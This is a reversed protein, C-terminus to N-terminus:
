AFIKPLWRRLIMELPVLPQVLEVKMGLRAAPELNDWIDDLYLIEDPKCRLSDLVMYYVEPHPKKRGLRYSLFWSDFQWLWPFERLCHEFHLVNTNSLLHLGVQGKLSSVIRRAGPREKFISNWVTVFEEFCMGLGMETKLTEYFEQPSVRGEDFPDEAPREGKFIYRIIESPDRYREVTCHRSLEEGIPLHSFEVLVNGLDLLVTRISNM